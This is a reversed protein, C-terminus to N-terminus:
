QALKSTSRRYDGCATNLYEVLWYPPPIHFIYTRVVVGLIFVTLGFAFVYFHKFWAKPVQVPKIFSSKGNYAFKGYRFTQRIFIPLYKEFYNILSGFAIIASTMFAFILQVHNVSNM